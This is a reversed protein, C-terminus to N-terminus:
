ESKLDFETFRFVVTFTLAPSDTTTKSLRLGGVVTPFVDKFQIISGSAHVACTSVWDTTGDIVSIQRMWSLMENYTVMDKDLLVDASFEGFTLKEGPLNVDHWRSAAQAVGLTVEPVNVTQCFFPVHPIRGFSLRFQTPNFPSFDFGDCSIKLNSM